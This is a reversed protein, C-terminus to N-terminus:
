KKVEKKIEPKVITKGLAKKYLRETKRAQKGLKNELKAVKKKDGKKNAAEIKKEIKKTQKQIKKVKKVIKKAKPDKMLTKLNILKDGEPAKTVREDKKILKAQEQKITEFAHKGNESAKSETKLADIIENRKKIEETVIKGKEVAKDTKQAIVKEQKENFPFALCATAIVLL